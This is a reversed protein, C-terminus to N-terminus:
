RQSSANKKTTVQISGIIKLLEECDKLLSETLKHDIYEGDRILRLWCKTERTEKYAITVKLFFDKKSQAGISEEINAGVSTGSKLIQRSLVFEKKESTLFQSLKVIRLAFTYSKEQVINDTKMSRFFNTIEDNTM